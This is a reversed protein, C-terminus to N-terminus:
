EPLKLRNFLVLFSQEPVVYLFGLDAGKVYPVLGKGNLQLLEGEVWKPNRFGFEAIRGQGRYSALVGLEHPYMGRNANRNVKGIKARFTVQGAPVNLDGTLKVAEVYEFFEVDSSQKDDSTNWNGYKRRLQVVETGYPGFAGVYLGEFPDLDGSPVTIRSFDTYESLKNRKQAQGVALKVIERVDKSIKPSVKESSWFAKAIESPMLDSVSQAAIAGVKVKSATNEEPENDHYIKSIHLMFSDREMDKIDAPVRIFEDKSPSQENNHLVGGIYLKTDLNEDDTTDSDGQAAVRDLQNSDIETADEEVDKGTRSESDEEIFQKLTDETINETVDVRMVKVKLEPIKEKLFNIVGKIGEEAAGELDISKGEGKEAESEELKVDVVATNEAEGASPGKASKDSSSNSNASNGKTQKLFAVQMSYGGDDDKVVFMEFLPTGPSSTVLQRPSYTKGVFRGMGPTIRIIRGFPDDLDKSYGVWWGVLGSGTNRCLRSADHYREEDIASKLQSMIEAINDKSTAEAIAIKLKAAEQFDEKEIADELQFKLVSAYNEAQEIESFHRTWRNWDWGASSPASLSSSCSSSSSSSLDSTSYKKINESDSSCRCFLKSKRSRRIISKNPLNPSFKNKLVHTLNESSSSPPRLQPPPSASHGTAWANAVAM